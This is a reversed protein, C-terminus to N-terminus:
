PSKKQDLGQQVAQANEHPHRGIWGLVSLGIILFLLVGVIIAINVKTTRKEITVPIPRSDNKDFGM